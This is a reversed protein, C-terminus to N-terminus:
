QVTTKIPMEKLSETGGPLCFNFRLPVASLLKRTHKEGPEVPMMFGQLRQTKDNLGLQSANFVPLSRKKVVQTKVDALVSWPLVDARPVLPAIPSNAGHVGAGKGAPLDISGPLLPATQAWLPASLCVAMGLVALRRRLPRAALTQLAFRLHITKM